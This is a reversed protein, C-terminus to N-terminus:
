AEGYLALAQLCALRHAPGSSNPLSIAGLRFAYAAGRSEAEMVWRTMRSLKLELDMNRPLAAFDICVENAAGGEFHKTLLGGGADPDTRAIQRWALSKMPDGPQYGRVGAVDEHGANGGDGTDGAIAFPLPPADTEPRPYVLARMAPKWYSWARFLGLPFRTQLRIRPIELWGRRPAIVSLMVDRTSHAAVDATHWLPAIEDGIFALNIAYRDRATRNILHLEFRAEEGAFLSQVRGAALDLHALNRFTLYMAAMMCGAILFTLGFGLGLDYNVSGIFLVVLMIAFAIGPRSPVIFIRRHNLHIEGREAERLQFLWKDLRTRIFRRFASFM